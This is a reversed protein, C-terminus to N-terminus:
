LSFGASCEALVAKDRLLKHIMSDSKTRGELLQFYPNPHLVHPYTPSQEHNLFLFAVLVRIFNLPPNM